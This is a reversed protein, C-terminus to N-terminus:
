KRRPPHVNPTAAANRTGKKRRRREPPAVPLLEGAHTMFVEIVHSADAKTARVELYEFSLRHDRDTELGLLRTVEDRVAKFASRLNDDDLDWPARHTFVVRATWEELGRLVGRFKSPWALLVRDRQERKLKALAMPHVRRNAVSPLHGPICISFNSIM